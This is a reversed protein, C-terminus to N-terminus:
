KLVMPEDLARTAADLLADRRRGQLRVEEGIKTAYAEDFEQPGAPFLAFWTALLALDSGQPSPHLEDRYLRLRADASIARLWTEAAPILIAGSEEAAMRASRIAEHFDDVNSRAPWASFVAPNAGIAKVAESFRKTDRILASRGEPRASPGQQLV